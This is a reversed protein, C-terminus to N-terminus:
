YCKEPETMLRFYRHSLTGFNWEASVPIQRNSISNNFPTKIEYVIFGSEM